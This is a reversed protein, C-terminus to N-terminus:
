QDAFEWVAPRTISAPEHQRQGLYLAIYALGIGTVLITIDVGALSWEGNSVTILLHRDTTFYNLLPLGLSLLSAFVIQETWARLHSRCMSHLLSVIWVAFFIGIEWQMRGSIDLPVLRNAWLYALCGIVPGAVAAVNMKEAFQLFGRSVDNDVDFLRKRKKTFLILGAAIMLTGMLGSLFYLWHVAYGGFQAFHLGSLVRQTLAAPQLPISDQLLRGSVGSFFVTQETLALQNENLAGVAVVSNKDGPHDISVYWVPSGDFAQRARETFGGLLMLPAPEGSAEPEEHPWVEHFFAESDGDYLWQIPSPIYMYAFIALGSFTIVLLFPLTLVGLFNHADLWARQGGARPRFTFFDKFIRKHIVIGTLLGVFMMLGIVGVVYTGITGANLQYHFHVFFHGGETERQLPNGTVPDLAAEDFEGNDLQWYVKMAQNRDNPPVILWSASEPAKKQLYAQGKNVASAQTVSQSSVEPQMWHTIERDFISLSGTLFIAFLIWGFVLGSWTHLWAMSQSFTNRM